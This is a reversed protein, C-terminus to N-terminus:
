PAPRPRIGIALKDGADVDATFPMAHFRGDGGTAVCGTRADGDGGPACIAEWDPAPEGLTGDAWAILVEVAGAMAEARRPQLGDTCRFAAGLVAGEDLDIPLPMPRFRADGSTCAADADGGVPEDPCSSWTEAGDPPASAAAAVGLYLACHTAIYDVILGANARCGFRVGLRDDAADLDGFLDLQGFADAPGSGNCSLDAALEPAAPCTGWTDGPNDLERTTWGLWARCERTILGACAPGDDIVGDCNDDLGNCETEPRPHCERSLGDASCRFVGQRPCIVGGFLFTCPQGIDFGDDTTGDCDNDLGDCQDSAAPMVVSECASWSEMGSAPEARCTREGRRCEGQQELDQCAETLPGAVDEAEDTSGDCDNDLGDCREPESLEDRPSVDCGATGDGRCVTRGSVACVGEGAGCAVGLAFTEDVEGDCDDDAGNCREPM